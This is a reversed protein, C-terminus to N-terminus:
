NRFTMKQKLEALFEDIDWVTVTMWNISYSSQNNNVTSYNNSANRPQVYSAQRRVIREPGNEGVLTVWKNLEGGYARASDSASMSLYEQRKAILRDVKAIEEDLSKKRAEVQKQFVKTYEIELQEKRATVDILIEVENDKEKKFEEYQNGLNEVQDSLQKAYELNDLDHIEHRVGERDEYMGKLTGDDQERVIIRQQGAYTYKQAEAIAQRELAAAKKEELEAEKEKMKNLIEQAKSTKETFEKAQRQEETTNQEILLMEDYIEKIEKLEKYDYGRWSWGEDRIKQWETDSIEGIRNKIYDNDINRWKEQLEVYRQGLKELSDTQNKELQDNYDEIAKAADRRTKTAEERLKAYEDEVKEISETLKEYNKQHDDLYGDMENYLQTVDEGYQKLMDWAKSSKGGSSGSGGLLSEGFIGGGSLSSGNSLSSNKLYNETKVFSKALDDEATIVKAGFDTWANGFDELLNTVNKTEKVNYTGFAKMFEGYSDSWSKGKVFFNEAFKDYWAKIGWFWDSVNNVWTRMTEWLQSVMISLAEVWQGIKQLTYMFVQGFTLASSSSDSKVGYFLSTFANALDWLVNFINSVTTRVNGFIQTSLTAISDGTQNIRNWIKSVLDTIVPIVELGITEGIGALNDKLNSWQGALTESQQEMLDAFRGGESTMSQFAQVMDSAGIQGKSVMDQIQTKTKWLNKALEDLLPVGATTFDKLEKGTLKWQTLVQGYNLALRELPVNLGASVDGLAKLTDIMDEASVWMALLQTASERIGQLEFPTKKAFDSLDSLLKKAKEADGLMTTFSIQAQQANNGLELISKGIKAAATTVATVIAAKKFFWTFKDFLGGSKNSAKDAEDWLEKIENQVGNLKQNNLEELEKDVQKISDKTNKLKGQLEQVNLRAYFEMESDGSNKFQKLEAKAKELDKELKVQNIMLDIKIDQKDLIKQSLEAASEVEKKIQNDDTQAQLTIPVKLDDTAM